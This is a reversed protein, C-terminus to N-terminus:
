IHRYRFAHADLDSDALQSVRLDQARLAHCGDICVRQRCFLLRRIVRMLLRAPLLLRLGFVVLSM